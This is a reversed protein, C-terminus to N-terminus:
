CTSPRSGYFHNPVDGEMQTVWSFIAGVVPDDVQDPKVLRVRAVQGGGNADSQRGPKNLQCPGPENGHPSLAGGFLM